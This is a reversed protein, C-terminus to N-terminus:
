AEQESLEVCKDKLKFLAECLMDVMTPTIVVTDGGVNDWNQQLVIENEQNIYVELSKLIFKDM